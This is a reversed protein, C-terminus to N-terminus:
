HGASIHDNLETRSADFSFINGVKFYNGQDTCKGYAYKAFDLKSQEFSFTNCIAIVQDTSFCNSNLITKATSLKTDEFSAKSVTEKASRFSPADMPYQCGARAPQVNDYSGTSAPTTSYSTTTTRTTTSTTNRNPDSVSIGVGGNGNMNPDNVNMNMSVGGNGNSPDNVNISMNVGGAGVNMNVNGGNPAVNNTTTVTTQTVTTSQEPQGYHMVYVDPPAVYSPAVPIASFYRIKLDGDKQKKIKYTVDAPANTTPDNVMVNKSIEPKTKDEFIIKVSYQPQALGDIRINTQPNSNQKQGNLVLFFRDGDESFITLASQAFSFVPLCAFLLLFLKSKMIEKNQPAFIFFIRNYGHSFAGYMRRLINLFIARCYQLAVTFQNDRYKKAKVKQSKVESAAAM